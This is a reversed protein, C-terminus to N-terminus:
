KILKKVLMLYMIWNVHTLYIVCISNGNGFQRWHSTCVHVCTIWLIVLLFSKNYCNPQLILDLTSNTSIIKVTGGLVFCTVFLIYFKLWM